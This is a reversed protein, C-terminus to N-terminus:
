PLQILPMGSPSAQQLCKSGGGRDNRAHYSLMCGPVNQLGAAEPKLHYVIVEWAM